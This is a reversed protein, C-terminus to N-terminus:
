AYLPCWRTVFSVLQGLNCLTYTESALHESELGVVKRSSTIPCLINEPCLFPSESLFTKGSLEVSRGVLQEQTGNTWVRQWFASCPLKVLLLKVFVHLTQKAKPVAPLGEFKSEVTAINRIFQALTKYIGFEKWKNGGFYKRLVWYPPSEETLPLPAPNCPNSFPMNRSVLLKFDSHSM